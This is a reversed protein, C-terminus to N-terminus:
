QTIRLSTIDSAISRFAERLEDESEARYFFIQSGSDDNACNDLLNIANNRSAADSIGDLDFGITYVTINDNKMNECLEASINQSSAASALSGFPGRIQGNAAAANNAVDAYATNFVGDTMLIAVKNVDDAFPAAENDPNNWLDNWEPSLMYYSWAIGLSGATFGAANMGAIEMKLESANNTLPLIRSSPCRLGANPNQISRRDSGVPVTKYSVNTAAESGGRDTVCRNTAVNNSSNLFAGASAVKVTNNGQTARAAFKHANISSAYPVIGLRVNSTATGDPLLIDVADSAATRLAQIKTGQMSGTADLMITVETDVQQFIGGSTSKATLEDIGAIAMLTTDLNVEASALVEGTDEDASFSVVNFDKAVGGRGTINLQFFANFDDEFQADVPQGSGLRVGADLVAADLASLMVSRANSYRSYDIAAGAVIGLTTLMLVATPIISGKEDNKFSAAKNYLNSLLKM